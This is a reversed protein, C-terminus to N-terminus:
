ANIIEYLNMFCNFLSTGFRNATTVAVRGNNYNVFQNLRKYDRNDLPYFGVCLWNTVNTTTSPAGDVNVSSIADTGVSEGINDNEGSQLQPSSLAELALSEEHGGEVNVSSIADTGVREGINDNEGSQLQPSSLAELVLSEEHGEEVNVSSNSSLLALSPPPDKTLQLNENANRNDHVLTPPPVDVSGGRPPRPLTENAVCVDTSPTPLVDVSDGLSSQPQPPPPATSIEVNQAQQALQFPLPVLAGATVDTTEDGATSNRVNQTQQEPLLLLPVSAGATVDATQQEHPKCITRNVTNSKGVTPQSASSSHLSPPVQMDQNANFINGSLEKQTRSNLLNITEIDNSNEPLSSSAKITANILSDIARNLGGDERFECYMDISASQVFNGGESKITDICILGEFPEWKLYIQGGNTKYMKAKQEPLYEEFFLYNTIIYSSYGGYIFTMEEGIDCSMLELSEEDFLHMMERSQMTAYKTLKSYWHKLAAVIEQFEESSYQASEELFFYEKFYELQDVDDKDIKIAAFTIAEYRETVDTILTKVSTLSTFLDGDGLSESIDVGTTQQGGSTPDTLSTRSVTAATAKSNTPRSAKKSPGTSLSVTKSKTSKSKPNNSLNKTTIVQGDPPVVDLSSESSIASQLQNSVAAALSKQIGSFIPDCEVNEDEGMKSLSNDEPETNSESSSSSGSSSTQSESAPDNDARCNRFKPRTTVNKIAKNASKSIKTIAPSPTAKDSSTSSASSSRNNRQCEGRM